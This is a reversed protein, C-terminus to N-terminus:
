QEFYGHLFSDFLHDAQRVAERRMSRVGLSILVFAHASRTSRWIAPEEQPPLCGVRVPEGHRDPRRPIRIDPIRNRHLRQHSHSGGAKETSTGDARSGKPSSRSGSQRCRPTSDPQRHAAGAAASKGACAPRAARRLGHAGARVEVLLASLVDPTAATQQGRGALSGGTM